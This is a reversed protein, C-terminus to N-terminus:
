VEGSTASSSSVPPLQSQGPVKSGESHPIESSKSSQIAAGLRGARLYSAMTESLAQYCEPHLLLELVAGDECDFLIKDRTTGRWTVQMSERPASAKEIAVKEAM